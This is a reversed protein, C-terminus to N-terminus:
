AMADDLARCLEGMTYPKKLFSCFGHERYTSIVEDDSYGSSVITRVCPEIEALRRAAEAGGMGGRVTLDLIVVGFPRGEERARRYKEVAAAGDEAFEAEHGLRRLLEGALVRIMPEDDMVLVRGARRVAGASSPSPPAAGVRPARTAPLYVTFASGKGLESSVCIKGDHNRVISYSTALGLGSGRDKTTFYPDFIRPLHEPPIGAGRDRVVIEVLGDPAALSLGPIQSSPANRVAIEIKGGLPMAQEANLVINQVVQGIQGEDAEVANLDKEFSLDYGVRSGSLAFKVANEVVARLDVPRKIPKGGKSFTLLQSTLNVSQHLAKEAQELMALSEERQDITLRAMSIYGFIGQLLNNFDHAIGGALMGISELKQSKLMEEELLKHESLDVVIGGLGVPRDDRRIPSSAITVPFVTGDKRLGQYEVYGEAKGALRNAVVKCARGRDGPALLQVMFLGAAFDQQTYGFKDLGAQNVYTLRGQLDTEFVTLPLSDALYRFREESQRLSTEARKRETIDLIVALSRVFAGAEDREAIASLLASVREGNKKVFTYSVDACVGTRMFDPLVENLAYARSQEDLFETSRRGLVEGRAYGLTTLWRDSVSVIVGQADISHMMVPTENYLRRYKAESRQLRDAARKRETIDRCVTFIRTSGPGQLLTANFEVATLGGSPGVYDVVLNRVSGCEMCKRVEAANRELDHAATWDTVPRGTIEAFSGRGTLRVYEENADLVRGQEDIIVYGTGTAEILLRYKEESERLAEEASEREAAQRKDPCTASLKREPRKRDSM